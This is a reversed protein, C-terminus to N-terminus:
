IIRWGSFFREPSDLVAKFRCAIIAMRTKYDGDNMTAAREDIYPKEIDDM